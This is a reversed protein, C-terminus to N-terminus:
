VKIWCHVKRSHHASPQYLMVSAIAGNLFLRSVTWLRAKWSLLWTVLNDVWSLERNLSYPNTSAHAIEVVPLWKDRLKQDWIPFIGSCVHPPIKWMWLSCLVCVYFVSFACDTHFLDKRWMYQPVKEARALFLGRLHFRFGIFLLLVKCQMCWVHWWKKSLGRLCRWYRLVLHEPHLLYFNYLKM